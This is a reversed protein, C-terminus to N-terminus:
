TKKKDQQQSPEMQPAEKMNETETNTSFPTLKQGSVFLGRSYAEKKLDEKLIVKDMQTRRGIIKSINHITDLTMNNRLGLM